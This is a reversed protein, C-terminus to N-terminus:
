SPSEFQEGLSLKVENLPMPLVNLIGRNDTTGKKSYLGDVVYGFGIRKIPNHKDDVIEILFVTPYIDPVKYLIKDTM